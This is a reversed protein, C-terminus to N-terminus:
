SAWSYGDALVKQKAENCSACYQQFQERVSESDQVWTANAEGKTLVRSMRECKSSEAQIWDEWGAQVMEKEISNVVRMAVILDHRYEGLHRRSKQIRLVAPDRSSTSFDEISTATKFSDLCPVNSRQKIGPDMAAAQDLDSIHIAKSMVLDQGIGLKRMYQRAHREQWWGSTERSSFFANTLVSLGLLVLVISNANVTKWCWKVVAITSMLIMSVINAVITQLGDLILRTMSRQGSSRRMQSSLAMESDLLETVQTQQGVPGFIQIAKKTQSQAGLKRVQEAIVDVLDLADLRLDSNAQREILLGALLPKQRWEISTFIALKCRSKSVHTIVIKSSLIYLNHYPLHWPTKRDTVVYCLHDNHVDIVQTDTVVSQRTQGVVGQTEVSYEFSRRMHSDKEQLWPGQKIRQARREHYLLQWVASRDGFLVHFLAKPSIEFNREVTPESMGRPVYVVPKNPLKFKLGDQEPGRALNSLGQDVTIKARLDRTRQSPQRQLSDVSSYREDWSDQSPSREGGESELKIMTKMISEVDQPNDSNANDVLFNLRKQLLKLPDLFTKITIRTSEPRDMINKLHMYLFDCNRGGAATVEEIRDLGVGSVLVLGLHNSYFYIYDTTIYVRGPFEQQENPNWTARFVLVLKEDRKVNPFLLRFQADQHKLQVPYYNPFERPPAVTARQLEAADGNLSITKRHRPSADVGITNPTTPEPLRDKSEQTSDSTALNLAPSAANQPSATPPSSEKSSEKGPKVEGREYRNIYGWNSSGWLNAMIGSPMGGTVDSRGIGVGREGNVAVATGSLNTSMPPAALTSPALSSPPLTRALYATRTSTPLSRNTQSEAPTSAAVGPGVPMSAHSASILSAIGSGASPNQGSLGTNTKRLDLKQKLRERNSETEKEAATSRRTAGVDFSGRHAMNGTENVPLTLSSIRDHGEDSTTHVGADAASATFEPASPPSIAFAPDLAQTNPSSFSDTSTPDDLAKQKALDFTSMWEILDPQSDAQIVITADKTKVEFCFRREEQPAPRVGCLLVGIRESEEVGGSRSGQVLWGFIGNKVYFWRRVWVTRTPKGTLTRLFLWGQKEASKPKSSPMASTPGKSLMAPVSFQSYDELERSPRAAMDASEEISKRATQIERRFAKESGEMERSWGRVRELDSAWKSLNGGPQSKWMTQAQDCFVRVLMKDLAIRLNPAATSLDLSAKLYGKRAEYLQFADERLSSAEKTKAQSSYRAQLGDFYRQSHDLQRQAEKFNRLDGSLFAKVPEVMNNDLNKLGSITSQWFDKAIDGYRQAALLTYDHDLIAESLTAPPAASNLYSTILTEFWSIEHSLKGVAKVFGDLWKEVAEAQAAFHM